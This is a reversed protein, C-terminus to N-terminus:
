GLIGQKDLRKFRDQLTEKEPKKPKTEANALRSKLASEYYALSSISQEPGNKKVYYLHIEEMWTLVKELPVEFRAINEAANMDKASLLASGRNRLQIFRETIATTRTDQPLGPKTLTEESHNHQDNEKEKEKEKEVKEEKKEREQNPEQNTDGVNETPETTTGRFSPCFFDVFGKAHIEESRLVTFLTGMNTEVATILGKKVLKDVSRKITSKSYQKEGRGERYGLDEVLKSYARIYQGRKLPIGSVMRGDERTAQTLLLLYLRFPVVEKWLDVEIVDRNLKVWGCM